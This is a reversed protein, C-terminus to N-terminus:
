FLVLLIRQSFAVWLLYNFAPLPPELGIKSVLGPQPWHNQRLPVTLGSRKNTLKVVVVVFFCARWWPNQAGEKKKKTLINGQHTKIIDHRIVDRQKISCQFSDVRLGWDTSASSVLSFHDFRGNSTWQLEVLINLTESFPPTLTPESHRPLQTWFHHDLPSKRKTHLILYEWCLACKRYPQCSPKPKLGNITQLKWHTIFQKLFFRPTMFQRMISAALLFNNWFLSLFFFASQPDM